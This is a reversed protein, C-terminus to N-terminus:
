EEIGHERLLQKGYEILQEETYLAHPHKQDDYSSWSCWADREMSPLRDGLKAGWCSPNPLNIM